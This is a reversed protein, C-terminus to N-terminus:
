RRLVATASVGGGDIGAARAADSAATANIAAILPRQRAAIRNRRDSKENWGAVGLIFCLLPHVEHLALFIFVVALWM